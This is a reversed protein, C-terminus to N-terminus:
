ITGPSPAADAGPVAPPDDPPRGRRPRDDAPSGEDAGFTVALLEGVATAVGVLGGDIRAAAIEEDSLLTGGGRLGCGFVRLLDRASPRGGAFREGLAVLDDLGFAEELECLAGLTLCLVVPRGDIVAAVEGRRRNPV